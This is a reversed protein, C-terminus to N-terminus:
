QSEPQDMMKKKQQQMKQQQQQRMQQQKMKMREQRLSAELTRLEQLMSEVEPNEKKMAELMEDRLSKNRQKVEKDQMMEQRAKQYKKAMGRYETILDQKETKTMNSSGSKLKQSIAKMRETDVSSGQLKKDLVSQMFQNLSDRKKKLDPNNEIAKQQISKLEKHLKQAREYKAMLEKRKSQQKSQAKSAGKGQGQASKDAQSSEALSAPALGFVMALVLIGFLGNKSIRLFRATRSHM